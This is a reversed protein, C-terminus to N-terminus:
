RVCPSGDRNVMYTLCAIANCYSQIDFAIWQIDAWEWALDNAIRDAWSQSPGLPLADDAVDVRWEHTREYKRM